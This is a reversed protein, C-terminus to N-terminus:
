AQTCREFELEFASALVLNKAVRRQANTNQISYPTSCAVCVSHFVGLTLFISSLVTVCEAVTELQLRKLLGQFALYSSTVLALSLM